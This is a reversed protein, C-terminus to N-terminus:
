GADAPGVAAAAGGGGGAGRGGRRGGARRARRAPRRDREALLREAGGAPPQSLEGRSVDLVRGGRTVAVGDFYESVADLLRRDVRGGAPTGGAQRVRIRRSTRSCGRARRAGAGAAAQGRARSRVLATAGSDGADDLLREGAPVDEVIGAAARASCRRLADAPRGRGRDRARAGARGRTGTRGRSADARMPSPRAQRPRQARAEEAAREAVRRRIAGARVSGRGREARAQTGGRRLWSTGGSSQEGGCPRSTPSSSM